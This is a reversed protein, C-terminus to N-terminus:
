ISIFFHDLRNRVIFNGSGFFTFQSGQLPLDLIGMPDVLSILDDFTSGFDNVGWREVGGLM